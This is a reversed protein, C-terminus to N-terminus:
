DMVKRREPIGGKTKSTVLVLGKAGQTELEFKKTGLGKEDTTEGGLPFRKEPQATGVDAKEGWLRTKQEQNKGAFKSAM